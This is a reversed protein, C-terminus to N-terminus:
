GDLKEMINEAAWKGHTNLMRVWAKRSPSWRFGNQKLIDRTEEDPKGPFIFMIRNESTDERYTYGDGEKVVSETSAARELERIRQEVRRINANNNRLSFPAFGIIGFCDPTLIDKAEEATAGLEMLAEIRADQTKAKRIAANAKKMFDQSSRMRELKERLKVLADPDDSSIGGNGVSAAKQEYYDAKDMTEFAKAYKRQIRERYRRDRAESYHGVIIPQGMPIVSAMTHADEHIRHAEERLRHAKEEYRARRAELKEEYSNM